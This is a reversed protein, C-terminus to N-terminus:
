WVQGLSGPFPREKQNQPGQSAYSANVFQSITNKCKKPLGWGQNPPYKVSWVPLHRKTMLLDACYSNESFCFSGFKSKWARSSKGPKLPFNKKGFIYGPALEIIWSYYVTYFLFPSYIYWSNGLNLQLTHQKNHIPVRYVPRRREPGFLALQPFSSFM